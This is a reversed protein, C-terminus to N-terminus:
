TGNKIRKSLQERISYTVGTLLFELDSITMEPVEVDIFKLFEKTKDNFFTSVKDMKDPPIAVEIRRLKRVVFRVDM